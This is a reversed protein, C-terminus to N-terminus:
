SVHTANGALVEWMGLAVFSSIGRATWTVYELRRQEFDPEKYIFTAEAARTKPKREPDWTTSEDLTLTDRSYATLEPDIMTRTGGEDDVVVMVCLSIGFHKASIALLHKQHIHVVASKEIATLAEWDRPRTLPENTTDVPRCPADLEPAHGVLKFANTEKFAEMQDESVPPPLIREDSEPLDAAPPLGSESGDLVAPPSTHHAIIWLTRAGVVLLLISGGIMTRKKWRRLTAGYKNSFDAVTTKWGDEAMDCVFAVAITWRPWKPSSFRRRVDRMIIQDAVYARAQRQTVLLALLWPWWISGTWLVWAVYSGWRMKDNADLAWMRRILEVSASHELAAPLKKEEVEPPPPDFGNVTTDDTLITTTNTQTASTGGFSTVVFRGATSRRKLMSAGSYSQPPGKLPEGSEPDTM